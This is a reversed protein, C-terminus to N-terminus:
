DVAYRSVLVEGIIVAILVGTIIPLSIWYYWVSRAAWKRGLAKKTWVYFGGQEPYTSGLEAAIMGFPMFYCALCLLWWFIASPGIAASAAIAELGFIACFTFLALDKFRLVKKREM